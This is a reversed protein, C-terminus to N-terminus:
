KLLLYVCLALLLVGTISQSIVLYKFTQKEVYKDKIIKNTNQTFRGKAM